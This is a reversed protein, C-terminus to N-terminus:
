IMIPLSKGIARNFGIWNAVVHIFAGAVLPLLGYNLYMPTMKNYAIEYGTYAAVLRQFAGTWNGQMGASMSWAIGPALGAIVALPIKRTSFGGRSRRRIVRTRAM